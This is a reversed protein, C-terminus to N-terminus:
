MKATLSIYRRPEEKNRRHQKPTTLRAIKVKNEENLVKILDNPVTEYQTLIAQPFGMVYVTITHKVM